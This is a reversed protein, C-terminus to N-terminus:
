IHYQTEVWACTGFWSLPPLEEADEEEVLDHGAFGGVLKAGTLDNVPALGLSGEKLIGFTLALTEM